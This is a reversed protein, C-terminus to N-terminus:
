PSYTWVVEAVGVISEIPIAGFYRSDFSREHSSGVLVHGPPVVFCGRVTPLPRGLSDTEFVPGHPQGGVSFTREVCWSAGPLAVIRKLLKGGTPIYNRDYVVDRLQEPVEFWVLDGLEVRGLSRLRYLGRAFSPTMNWVLEVKSTAHAFAVVAICVLVVLLRQRM